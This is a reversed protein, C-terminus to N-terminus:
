SLFSQIANELATLETDSLLKTFVLLRYTGHWVCRYASTSVDDIWSGRDMGTAADITKTNDSSVIAGSTM